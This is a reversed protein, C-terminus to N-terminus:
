YSFFSNSSKTPYSNEITGTKLNDSIDKNTKYFVYIYVKKLFICVYLLKYIM